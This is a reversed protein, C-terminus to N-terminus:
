RSSKTLPEHRRKRAGGPIDPRIRIRAGIERSSTLMGCVIRSLSSAMGPGYYVALIRSASDLPARPSLLGTSCLLRCFLFRLWQPVSSDGTSSLVKSASGFRQLDSRFQTAPSHYRNSHIRKKLRMKSLPEMNFRCKWTNETCKICNTAKQPGRMHCRCTSVPGPVPESCTMIAKFVSRRHWCPIHVARLRWM